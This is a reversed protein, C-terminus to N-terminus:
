RPIAKTKVPDDLLPGFLTLYILRYVDINDFGASFRERLLEANLGDARSLIAGAYDGTGVWTIAFEM